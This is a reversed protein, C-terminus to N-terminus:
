KCLLTSVNIRFFVIRQAGRSAAASLFGSVHEVVRARLFLVGVELCVSPVILAGRLMWGRGVSLPETRAEVVDRPESLVPSSDVVSCGKGFDHTLDDGNGLDQSNQGPDKPDCNNESPDLGATIDKEVLLLPGADAAGPKGAEEADEFSPATQKPTTTETDKPTTTQKPDVPEVAAGEELPLRETNKPTKKSPAGQEKQSSSPSKKKGISPQATSGTATTKGSPILQNKSEVQFTEFDDFNDTPTNSPIRCHAVLLAGVDGRLRHNWVEVFITGFLRHNWFTQYKNCQQM